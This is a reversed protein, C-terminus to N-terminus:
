SFLVHAFTRPFSRHYQHLSYKREAGSRRTEFLLRNDSNGEQLHFFRQEKAGDADPRFIVEWTFTEAGALPHVDLFLADNKGNFEIAKGRPTDIVRPNGEVKVTHGGIKDVRDFTWLEFAPATSGMGSIFHISAVVAFTQRAANM